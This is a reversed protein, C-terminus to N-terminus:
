VTVVSRRTRSTGVVAPAHMQSGPLPSRTHPACELIQHLKCASLLPFVRRPANHHNTTVRTPTTRHDGPGGLVNKSELYFFFLRSAPRPWNRDQRGRKYVTRNVHPKSKGPNRADEPIRRFRAPRLVSCHPCITQRSRRGHSLCVRQPGFPSLRSPPHSTPFFFPGSRRVPPSPYANPNAYLVSVATYHLRCTDRAATYRTPVSLGCKRPPPPNWVRGAKARGITLGEWERLVCVIALLRALVTPRKCGFLHVPCWFCALSSLDKHPLHAASFKDSATHQASPPGLLKNSDPTRLHTAHSTKNIALGCVRPSGCLCVGRAAVQQPSHTGSSEISSGEGKIRCAATPPPYLCPQSGTAYM